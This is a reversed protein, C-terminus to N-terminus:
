KYDLKFFITHIHFLHFIFTVLWNLLVLCFLHSNLYINVTMGLTYVYNM